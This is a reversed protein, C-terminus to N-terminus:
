AKINNGWVTQMKGARVGCVGTRQVQQGRVKVNCVVCM